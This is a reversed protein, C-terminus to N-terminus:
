RLRTSLRWIASTVINWNNCVVCMCARVRVCVYVCVCVCVFVCVYKINIWKITISVHEEFKAKFVAQKKRKVKSIFILPKLPDIFHLLEICFTQMYTHVIAIYSGMELFQM